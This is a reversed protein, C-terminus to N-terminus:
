QTINKLPIIGGKVPDFLYGRPVSEGEYLFFLENGEVSIVEFRGVQSNPDVEILMTVFEHYDFDNFQSSTEWYALDFIPGEGLNRENIMTLLHIKGVTLNPLKDTVNTISSGSSLPLTPVKAQNM